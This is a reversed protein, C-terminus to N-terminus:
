MRMQTRLGRSRTREVSKTVSLYEIRNSCVLCSMSTSNRQILIMKMSRIVRMMLYRIMQTVNESYRTGKLGRKKLRRSKMELREDLRKRQRKQMKVHKRRMRKIKATRRKVSSLSKSKKM